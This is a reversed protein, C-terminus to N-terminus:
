VGKRLRIYAELGKVLAKPGRLAGDAGMLGQGFGRGPGTFGSASGQTSAPLPAAGKCSRTHAKLPGMLARLRLRGRSVGTFVGEFVM